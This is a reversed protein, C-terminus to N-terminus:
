LPTLRELSAAVGAAERVFVDCLEADRDGLGLASLYAKADDLSGPDDPRGPLWAVGGSLATTGGLREAAEIVTVAAGEVSAAVAAALGAAGSGVVIVDM